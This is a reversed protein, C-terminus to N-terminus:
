KRKQKHRTVTSWEEQQRPPLATEEEVTKINIPPLIVHPKTRKLHKLMVMAPRMTEQDERPTKERDAIPPQATRNVAATSSRTQRTLPTPQPTGATESKTKVHVHEQIEAEDGYEMCDDEEVHEVDIEEDEDEEEEETQRVAGVVEVTAQKQGHENLDLAERRHDAPPARRTPRQTSRHPADFAARPIHIAPLGNHIARAINMHSASPQARDARGRNPQTYAHEEM